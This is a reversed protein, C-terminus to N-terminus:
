GGMEIVLKGKSLNYNMIPLNIPIIKQYVKGKGLAKIEVSNELNMISIDEISKVGPMDIEYVVSGGLRKMNAVPEERPLGKMKKIKEESIIKPKVKTQKKQIKRVQQPQNGFHRVDIRPPMNGVTSISISVGKKQIDRPQQEKLDRDLRSFEQNLNKMLSKFITNFGIPLKINDMEMFDNRGLMGWEEQNEKLPGGCSPCFEYKDNVKNGCRRCSKKNFM